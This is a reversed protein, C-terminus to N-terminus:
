IDDKAGDEEEDDWEWAHKVPIYVMSQRLVIGLHMRRARTSGFWIGRKVNIEMISFSNPSAHKNPWCENPIVNSYERHAVGLIDYKM